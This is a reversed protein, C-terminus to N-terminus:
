RLLMVAGARERLWRHMLEMGFNIQPWLHTGYSESAYLCRMAEYIFSNLANLESIEDLLDLRAIDSEAASAKELSAAPPKKNALLHHKLQRRPSSRQHTAIDTLNHTHSSPTVAIIHLLLTNPKNHTRKKLTRLTLRPRHQTKHSTQGTTPRNTNQPSTNTELKSHTTAM